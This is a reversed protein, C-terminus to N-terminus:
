WVYYYQIGSVPVFTPILNYTGKCSTVLIETANYCAPSVSVGGNNLTVGGFCRYGQCIDSDYVYPATVPAPTSTPTISPKVTPTPKRKENRSAIVSSPTMVSGIVLTLGLVSLTFVIKNKM